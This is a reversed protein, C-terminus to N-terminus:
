RSKSRLFFSELRSSDSREHAGRHLCAKREADIRLALTEIAEFLPARNLRITVLAATDANTVIEVRGQREISKLVASLPTNTFALTVLGRETWWRWALVGMASAAIVLLLATRLKRM